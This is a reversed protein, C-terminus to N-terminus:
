EGMLRALPEEIGEQGGAFYPAPDFCPTRLPGIRSVDQRRDAGQVAQLTDQFGHMIREILETCRLGGPHLLVHRRVSIGAIAEPRVLGAQRLIGAFAFCEGALNARIAIVEQRPDAEWLAQSAEPLEGGQFRQPPDPQLLIIATGDCPQFLEAPAGPVLLRERRYTHGRGVVQLGAVATFAVSM